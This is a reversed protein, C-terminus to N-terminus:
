LFLCYFLAQTCCCLISKRDSAFFASVYIPSLVRKGELNADYAYLPQNCVQTRTNGMETASFAAAAKMGRYSFHQNVWQPRREKQMFMKEEKAGECKM